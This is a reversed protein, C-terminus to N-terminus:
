QVQLCKKLLYGSMEEQETEGLSSASGNHNQIRKDENRNQRPFRDPRESTKSLGELADVGATERLGENAGGGSFCRRAM